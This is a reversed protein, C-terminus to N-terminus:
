GVFSPLVQLVFFVAYVVLFVRFVFPATKSNLYYRKLLTFFLFGMGASLVISVPLFLFARYTPVTVCLWLIGEVLNRVTYCAFFLLSAESAPVTYLNVLKLGIRFALRWFIETLVASLVGIFLFTHWGYPVQWAASVYNLISDINVLQALTFSLYFVIRVIWVTLGYNKKLKELM